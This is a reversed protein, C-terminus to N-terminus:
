IMFVAGAFTIENIVQASKIGRYLADYPFAVCYIYVCMM